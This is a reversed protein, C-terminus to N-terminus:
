QDAKADTAADLGPTQGNCVCASFTKDGPLCQAYGFDGGDCSCSIYDGAYCREWTSEGVCGFAVLVIAAAVLGLIFVRRVVIM